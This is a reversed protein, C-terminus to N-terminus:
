LGRSIKEIEVKYKIGYILNDITQLSSAMFKIHIDLLDRKEVLDEIESLIQLEKTKENPFRKQSKYSYYDYKEAWEKRYKRTIQSIITLLYHHYEVALQRETYIETMLESVKFIDKMKASMNRIKESWELREKAFRSELTEDKKNIDKHDKNEENRKLFDDVNMNNLDLDM